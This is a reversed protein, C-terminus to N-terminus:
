VNMGVAKKEKRVRFLGGEAKMNCLHSNYKHNIRSQTESLLYTLKKELDCILTRGKGLTESLPLIKKKPLGLRKKGM